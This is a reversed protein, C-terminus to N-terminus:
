MRLYCTEHLADVVTVDKLTLCGDPAIACQCTSSKSAVSSLSSAIPAVSYWGIVSWLWPFPVNYRCRYNIRESINEAYHCIHM